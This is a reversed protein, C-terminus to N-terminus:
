GAIQMLLNATRQPDQLMMDHGTAIEETQWGTRIKRVSEPSSSSKGVLWESLSTSAVGIEAAVTAESDYSLNLYDRLEALIPDPPQRKNPV